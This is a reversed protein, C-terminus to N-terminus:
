TRNAPSACPACASRAPRLPAPPEILAAEPNPCQDATIGPHTGVAGSLIVDADRCAAITEGPLMAGTQAWGTTGYPWPGTIRVPAGGRELQRLFALPGDLIEAGIGDGPLLAITTMAAAPGRTQTTMIAAARDPGVRQELARLWPAVAVAPPEHRAHGLDGGFALLSAPYVATLGLCSRGDDLLDPLIGLELYAGLDRLRGRQSTNWGLFAMMPHNVLLRQVGRRRAETFLVM